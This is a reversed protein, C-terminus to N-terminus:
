RKRDSLFFGLLVSGGLLGMRLLMTVINSVELETQWYGAVDLLPQLVCYIFVLLPLNRILIQKLNEIKEKVCFM